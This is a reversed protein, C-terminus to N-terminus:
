AIRARAVPRKAEGVGSFGVRAVVPEHLFRVGALDKTGAKNPSL